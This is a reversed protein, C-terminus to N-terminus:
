ARLKRWANDILLLGNQLMARDFVIAKTGAMLSLREIVHIVSTTEGSSVSTRTLEIQDIALSPWAFIEAGVSLGKGDIFIATGPPPLGESRHQLKRNWTRVRHDLLLYMVLVFVAAIIVACVAVFGGDMPDAILGVIAFVAMLGIAIGGLITFWRKTQAVYTQTAEAPTMVTAKVEPETRSLMFSKEEKPTLADVPKDNVLIRM